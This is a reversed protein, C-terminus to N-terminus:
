SLGRSVATAGLTSHEITMGNSCPNLGSLLMIHLVVGDNHEIMMGNSYSNLGSKGLGEHRKSKREMMM